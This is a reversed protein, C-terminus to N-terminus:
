LIPDFRRLPPMSHPLFATLSTFLLTIAVSVWGRMWVCGVVWGDGGPGRGGGGGRLRGRVEGEGQIEGECM